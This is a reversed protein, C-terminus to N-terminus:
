NAPWRSMLLGGPPTEIQAGGRNTLLRWRALSATKNVASNGCVCVPASLEHLALFVGAIDSM